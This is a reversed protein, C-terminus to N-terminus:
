ENEEKRESMYIYYKVDDIVKVKEKFQVSIKKTSVMIFYINEDLSVLDNIEKDTFRFVDLDIYVLATRICRKEKSSHLFAKLEEFKCWIPSKSVVEENNSFAQCVVNKYRAVYERLRSSLMYEKFKDCSDQSVGNCKFYKHIFYKMCYTDTNTFLDESPHLYM